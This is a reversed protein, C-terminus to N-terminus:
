NCCLNIEFKLSYENSRLIITDKGTVKILSDNITSLNYLKIMTINSYLKVESEGSSDKLIFVPRNHNTSDLFKKVLVGKFQLDNLELQQQVCNKNLYEKQFFVFVLIILITSIFFLTRNM